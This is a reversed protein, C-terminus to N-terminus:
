QYSFLFSLNMLKQYDNVICKMIECKKEYYLKMTVREGDQTQVILPMYSPLHSNILLRLYTHYDEKDMTVSVYHYGSNKVREKFSYYANQKPLNPIENPYHKGDADYEMQILEEALHTSARLFLPNSERILKWYGEESLHWNRILEDTDLFRTGPPPICYGGDVYVLFSDESEQVNPTYGEVCFDSFFREVDALSWDNSKPVKWKGTPHSKREERDAYYNWKTDHVRKM